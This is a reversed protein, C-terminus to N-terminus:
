RLEDLLAKADNLVPTDFGDTFRRSFTWSTKAGGFGLALL